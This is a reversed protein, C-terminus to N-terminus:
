ADRRTDITIELDVTSPGRSLDIIAEVPAIDENSVYAAVLLNLDSYLEREFDLIPWGSTARAKSAAIADSRALIRVRIYRGLSYDGKHDMIGTSIEDREAKSFMERTILVQGSSDSRLPPLQYGYDVIVPVSPETFATGDTKRLQIRIMNPLQYRALHVIDLVFESGCADCRFRQGFASSLVPFVTQCDPCRCQPM